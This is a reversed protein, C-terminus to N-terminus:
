SMRDPGPVVKQIKGRRDIYVHLFYDHMGEPQGRGPETVSTVHWGDVTTEVSQIIGARLQSSFEPKEKQIWEDRYRTTVQRIEAESIDRAPPACAVIALGFLVVSPIKRITMSDVSKRM